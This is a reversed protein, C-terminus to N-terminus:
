NEDESDDTSSIIIRKVLFRESDYELKFDKMEDLVKEVENCSFTTKPLFPSLEKDLITLWIDTEDPLDVNVEAKSRSKLKSIVSRAGCKANTCQVKEMGEETPPEIDKKCSRCMYTFQVNRISAFQDVHLTQLSPKKTADTLPEIESVESDSTLSVYLNGRFRSLKAHTIQYSKENQFMNLKNKFVQFNVHGSSDSLYIDRKIQQPGFKTQITDFDDTGIAVMGNLTYVSNTNPETSKFAAITLKTCNQKQKLEEKLSSNLSFSVETATAPYSNCNSGFVVNNNDPNKRIELKVRSGADAYGKLAEYNKANFALMRMSHESDTQIQLTYQSFQGRNLLPSVYLIYGCIVEKKTPSLLSNSVTSPHARKTPTRPMEADM